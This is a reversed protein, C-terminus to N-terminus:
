ALNRGTMSEARPFADGQDGVVVPLGIQERPRPEVAVRKGLVLQERGTGRPRQDGRRQLLRDVLKQATRQASVLLDAGRDRLPPDVGNHEEPIRQRRVRVVDVDLREQPYRDDVVDGNGAVARCGFKMRELGSMFWSYWGLKVASASTALSVPVQARCRISRSRSAFTLSENHLSSSVFFAAPTLSLRGGVMEAVTSRRM